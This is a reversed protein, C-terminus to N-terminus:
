TAPEINQNVHFVNDPDYEGKVRQLREYNEGYSARVRDEGENMLFNVYAGDASHPHLAEWYDQVWDTIDRANAPDPDVGAIVM